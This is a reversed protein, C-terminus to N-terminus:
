ELVTESEVARSSSSRIASQRSAIMGGFLRWIMRAATPRNFCGEDSKRGASGASHFLLDELTEALGACELSIVSYRSRLLRNERHARGRTSTQRFASEEPPATVRWMANASSLRWLGAPTFDSRMRTVLEPRVWHGEDCARGLADDTEASVKASHHLHLASPHLAMERVIERPRSRSILKM